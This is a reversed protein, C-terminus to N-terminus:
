SSKSLHKTMTPRTQDLLVGCVAPKVMCTAKAAPNNCAAKDAQTIHSSLKSM